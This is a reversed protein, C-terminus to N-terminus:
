QDNDSRQNNASKNIKDKHFWKQVLGIETTGRVNYFHTAIVEPTFLLAVNGLNSM